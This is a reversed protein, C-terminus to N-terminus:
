VFFQLIYFYGVKLVTQCHNSSPAAVQGIAQKNIYKMGEVKCAIYIIYMQTYTYWATVHPNISKCSVLKLSSNNFNVPTKKCPHKSIFTPNSILVSAVNRYKPM